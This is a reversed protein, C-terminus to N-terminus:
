DPTRRIYLWNTVDRTLSEDTRLRYKSPEYEPAPEDSAATRRAGLRAAARTVNTEMARRFDNAQVVENEPLRDSREIDAMTVHYLAVNRGGVKTFRPAVLVYRGGDTRFGADIRRALIEPRGIEGPAVEWSHAPREAQQVASTFSAAEFFLTQDSDNFLVVDFLPQFGFEYAGRTRWDFPPLGRGLGGSQASASAVTGLLLAAAFAAPWSSRLVHRLAAPVTTM